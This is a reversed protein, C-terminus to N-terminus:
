KRKLEYLVNFPEEDHEEADFKTPRIERGYCIRLRDGELEYIGNHEIDGSKFDFTRPSKTTDLTFTVGERAKQGNRTIWMKDKEFTILHDGDPSALESKGVHCATVVWTGLMLERDKKETDDRVGNAALLALFIAALKM